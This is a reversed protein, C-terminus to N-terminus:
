CGISGPPCGPNLGPGTMSPFTSRREIDGRLQNIEFQTQADRSRLRQDITISQNTSRLQRESPSERPLVQALAPTAAAALVLLALRFPM